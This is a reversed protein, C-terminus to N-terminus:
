TSLTVQPMDYTIKMGELLGDKPTVDQVLHGHVVGHPADSSGPVTCGPGLCTYSLCQQEPVGQYVVEVVPSWERNILITVEGWCELYEVVGCMCVVCM